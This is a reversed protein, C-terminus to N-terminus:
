FKTHSQSNAEQDDADLRESIQRIKFEDVRENAEMLSAIIRGAQTPTGNRIFDKLKAVELAYVADATGETAMCHRIILREIHFDTLANM